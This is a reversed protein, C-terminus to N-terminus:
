SAENLTWEEFSTKSKSHVNALQVERQQSDNARDVGSYTVDDYCLFLPFLSHNLKCFGVNWVPFVHCCRWNFQTVDYSVPGHSWNVDLCHPASTATWCPVLHSVGCMWPVIYWFLIAPVPHWQPYTPTSKQPRLGKAKGKQRGTYTNQLVRHRDIGM